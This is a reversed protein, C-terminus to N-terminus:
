VCPCMSPYVAAQLCNRPKYKKLLSKGNGHKWKEQSVLHRLTVYTDFSTSLQESRTPEFKYKERIDKSVYTAFFPHKIEEVGQELQGLKGTEGGKLTQLIIITNRLPSLQDLLNKFHKDMYALYNYNARSIESLLIVALKSHSPYLNVFSLLYNFTLDYIPQGFVCYSQAAM